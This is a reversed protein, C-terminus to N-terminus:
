GMMWLVFLSVGHLLAVRLLSGVFRVGRVLSVSVVLGDLAFQACVLGHSITRSLGIRDAISAFPFLLGRGQTGSIIGTRNWLWQAALALVCGLVVPWWIEVIGPSPELDEKYHIRM